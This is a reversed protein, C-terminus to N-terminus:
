ALQKYIDGQYAGQMQIKLTFLYENWGDKEM